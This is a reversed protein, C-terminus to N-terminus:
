YVFRQNVNNSKIIYVGKVLNSIDLTKAKTDGSKVLKGSMDFIYYEGFFGENLILNGENVVVKTSNKTSVESTSLLSCFNSLSQIEAATIARDFVGFEDIVAGSKMSNYTTSSGYSGIKLPKAGVLSLATSQNVTSVLAGDKYGKITGAVSDYVIIFDATGTVPLVNSLTIDTMGTARIMINNAGATGNTFARLSKGSPDDGFFYYITGTDTPHNSLKFHITWSGPLNLNWNTNFVDTSAKGGAGVLGNSLCVTNAGVNMTGVVTGTPSTTAANTALNQVTTAGATDFKYYLLEPTQAKVFLSAGLFLLLNLKM